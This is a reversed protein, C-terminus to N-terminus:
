AEIQRWRVIIRELLVFTADGVAALAMSLVLGVVTPTYFYDHLGTIILQGLGGWEIFATITVLGVVTVTAVRLGAFLSPLALPLYVRIMAGTPTFGMATAAERVEDTAADLGTLVNRILILLTYGTLAVEATLLSFYGTVPQILVFLALSPITYLLGAFGLIAGRAWHFRWAILATPVSLALGCGVAIGTLEAHQAIANAIVGANTGIWSWDIFPASSALLAGLM